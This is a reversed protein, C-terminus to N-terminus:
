DPVNPSHTAQVRVAGHSEGRSCPPLTYVSRSKLSPNAPSPSSMLRNLPSILVLATELVLKYKIALYVREVPQDM